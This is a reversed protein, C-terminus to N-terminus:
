LSPVKWGGAYAGARKMQAADALDLHGEWYAGALLLRGVPLAKGAAVHEQMDRVIRAGNGHFYTDDLASLIADRTTVAEGDGSTAKAFLDGLRPSLDIKADALDWIDAGNGLAAPGALAKKEGTTLLPEFAKLRRAVRETTEKVFEADNVDDPLMGFRALAYAGADAAHVNFIKAGLARFLEIENRLVTRATGQERNNDVRLVGFDVVGTKLNFTRTEDFDDHVIELTGYGSPAVRLKIDGNGLPLGRKLIAKMQEGTLGAGYTQWAEGDPEQTCHFSDVPMPEYRRDHPPLAPEHRRRSM